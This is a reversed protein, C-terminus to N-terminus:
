SGGKRRASTEGEPLLDKPFDIARGERMAQEGILVTATNLLGARADCLTAQERRQVCRLFEVLEARTDDGSADIEYPKGRHAWPDNTMKLTKGSTLLAADEKVRGKGWGPDDVGAERYFLGKKQTLFLTGKTGLVLESAGEYANNQVSSYTVRVTYSASGKAAPRKGPKAKLEYEYICFVNDFVDRGDRWYDLGGSGLARRPPTGLLGNVVDLQHSALETMLGGSTARYLRWNLRRELAEWKPDSRKVPVPRRWNNHRHWRCEIASIQGLMGTEVMAAAQRYIANARRQLGVQFVAGDKRVAAALERAQAISYCMTKECFVACGGRLAALAMECHLHLPTAIVIARPRVERLMQAYSTYAKARAGAYKKGRELHPPYDDCVAVLDAREITTLTRVLDSGRAGTGVVAVRVKEGGEDAAETLGVAGALVLSSALFRRRDTDTNM